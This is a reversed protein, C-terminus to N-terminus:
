SLMPRRKQSKPNILELKANKAPQTPESLLLDVADLTVDLVDAVDVPGSTTDEENRM